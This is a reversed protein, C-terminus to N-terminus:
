ENNTEKPEEKPKTKIFVILFVFIFVVAILHQQIFLILYGVKPIKYNYKGIINKYTITGSDEVNNNDGKTVYEKENHENHIEIIRHTVMMNGKSFSIIDGIQLEDETTNKIIVIDGINIEPEMSGSLVIYAKVNTIFPIEEKNIIKKILIGAMIVVIVLIIIQIVRLIKEKTM